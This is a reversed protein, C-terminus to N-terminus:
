SDMEQAQYRGSPHDGEILAVIAPVSATPPPRDSIDEGPFAAQHMETAMDGPDVALVRWEPHEAGLVRSVQDLAAKSSGYGSWGEYAGLAADSSINIVVAGHGLDHALEAVLAVPAVVNVDFTRRLVEPDTETVAPLPSAGLTSANNVLLRVSGAERAAAALASRHAPDTVDGAIAVVSGGGTEATARLRGVVEDLNKERRADLVVAWGRNILGEALAYGLGQSGGTIVAVSTM